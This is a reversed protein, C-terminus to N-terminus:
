QRLPLGLSDKFSGTAILIIDIIWGIGCLGGTFLYLLGTGVKGVYFRHIGLGGLFLCLLLAAIKSKRSVGPMFGMGPMVSNNIIVQPQTYPQQPTNNPVNQTNEKYGCYSCGGNEM